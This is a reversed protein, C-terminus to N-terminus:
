VKEDEEEGSFMNNMIVNLKKFAANKESSDNCYVFLGIVDIGTTM